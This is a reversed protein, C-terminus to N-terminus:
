DRISLISSNTRFNVKFNKTIYCSVGIIVNLTLNRLPIGEDLIEYGDYREEYSGILVDFAPGIEVSLRKLFNYQYLVPIEIYNLRLKYSWSDGNEYDANKRSGKQIFELEMQFSSHKSINLIVFGGGQFGVKDFGEWLDGAVQSINGGVLIGGDFKQSFLHGQLLFMLTFLILTLTQKSTM